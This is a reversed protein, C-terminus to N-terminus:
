LAAQLPRFSFQGDAEQMFPAHIRLNEPVRLSDYITETQEGLTALRKIVEKADDPSSVGADLTKQLGAIDLESGYQAMVAQALSGDYAALENVAKRYALIVEVPSREQPEDKAQYIITVPQQPRDNLTKMGTLAVLVSMGSSMGAIPNTYAAGALALNVVSQMLSTNEQQQKQMIQLYGALAENDQRIAEIVADQDAASIDPQYDFSGCAQLAFPLILTALLKKM